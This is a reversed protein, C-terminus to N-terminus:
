HISSTPIAMVITRFPWSPSLYPYSSPWSTSSSPQLSPNMLRFLDVQLSAALYFLPGTDGNGDNYCALFVIFFPAFIHFFCATFISENDLVSPSKYLLLTFCHISIALIAMVITTFLGLLCILHTLHPVINRSQLPM